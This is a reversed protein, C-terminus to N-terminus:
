LRVATISGIINISGYIQVEFLSMRLKQMMFPQWFPAGIGVAAMWWCNYALFKRFNGDKFPLILMMAVGEEGIGKMKEPQRSLVILGVFGAIAALLFIISFGVDLHEAKFFLPRWVYPTYMGEATFSDIFISFAYGVSVATVMLYQSRLSFFRGRASVPVLDSIWGIWANDAVSQLSVSILFLLLFVDMANGRLFVFPLAGYLLAIARGSFQLPLVIPKRKLRKQTIISGLPQFIQCLQGIASLIGFQLPTANLMIAFRTVFASGPGALTSSVQGLVGETISIKLFRRLRKDERQGEM